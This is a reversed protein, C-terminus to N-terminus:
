RLRLVTKNTKQYILPINSIQAYNNISIKRGQFDYFISPITSLTRKIPVFNSSSNKQNRIQSSFISSPYITINDLYLIGEGGNPISCELMGGGLVRWTIKYATKLYNNFFYNRGEKSEGRRRESWGPLMLEDKKVVIRSWKRTPVETIINYFSNKDEEGSCYAIGYDSIINFEVGGNSITDIIDLTDIKEIKRRVILITDILTDEEGIINKKYKITDTTIIITDKKVEKRKSWAVLYIDFAVSDFSSIDIGENTLSIDTGIGVFQEAGRYRETCKNSKQCPFLDGITFEIKACYDASEGDKLEPKVRSYAGKGLYEANNIQSTGSDNVDSFYFWYLDLKNRDNRDNFDDLLFGEDGAYLFTLNILCLFFVLVRKM